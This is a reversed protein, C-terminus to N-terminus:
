AGPQQEESDRSEGSPRFYPILDPSHWRGAQLIQAVSCGEQVLDLAKGIRPSHGSYGEGLGAAQAMNRIRISVSRHSMEFIHSSEDCPDPRIAELDDMTQPSLSVQSCRFRDVSKSSHVSITGAGDDCRSIAGWRANVMEGPRLMGGHMVSVLAIDVLGRSRAREPTEDVRGLARPLLATRRIAELDDSTLWASFRNWEHDLLHPNLHDSM